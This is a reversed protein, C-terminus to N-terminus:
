GMKRYRIVRAVAQTAALLRVFTQLYGRSILFGETIERSCIIGAIAWRVANRLGADQSNVLHCMRWEYTSRGVSVGDVVFQVEM